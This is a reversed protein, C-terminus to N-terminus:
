PCTPPEYVVPDLDRDPYIYPSTLPPPNVWFGFRLVDSLSLHIAILFIVLSFPKLTYQIMTNPFYSYAESAVIKLHIARSSHRLVTSDWIWPSIQWQYPVAQRPRPQNRTEFCLFPCNPSLKLLGNLHKVKSSAKTGRTEHMFMQSEKRDIGSTASGSLKSSSENEVPFHTLFRAPSCLHTNQYRWTKCSIQSGCAWSQSIMSVEWPVSSSWRSQVLTM